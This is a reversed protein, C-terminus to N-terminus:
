EPGIQRSPCASRSRSVIPRTSGTNMQKTPWLRYERRQFCALLGRGCRALNAPLKGRGIMHGPCAGRTYGLFSRPLRLAYSGLSDYIAPWSQRVPGRRQSKAICHCPVRSTRREVCRKPCSRRRRTLASTTCSLSRDEGRREEYAAAANRASPKQSWLCLARPEGPGIEDVLGSYSQRVIQPGVPGRPPRAHGRRIVVALLGSLQEHPCPRESIGLSLRQIGPGRFM